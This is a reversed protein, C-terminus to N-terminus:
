SNKGINTRHFPIFSDDGNKTAASLNLPYKIQIHKPLENNVLKWMFNKIGILQINFVFKKLRIEYMTVSM